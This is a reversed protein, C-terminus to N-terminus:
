PRQRERLGREGEEESLGSVYLYIIGKKMAFGMKEKFTQLVGKGRAVNADQREETRLYV